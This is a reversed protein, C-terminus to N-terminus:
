LHGGFRKWVPASYYESDDAPTKKGANSNYHYNYLLRFVGNADFKTGIARDTGYSVAGRRLLRSAFQRAVSETICGSIRVQASRTFWCRCPGKMLKARSFTPRSGLNLIDSVSYSSLVGGDNNKTVVGGHGGVLFQHIPTKGEGSDNKIKLPVQNAQVVVSGTLRDYNGLGPQLAIVLSVGSTADLNETSYEDCPWIKGPYGHDKTKGVPWLCSWDDENKSVKKALGRLSDGREAIWISETGPKKKWAGLSDFGNIFENAIFCYLSSGGIEEIPDRSLWRGMVPEHHRYNYYITASDDEAYESSFRWPNSQAEEGHMVLEAGFPAYEYHACTVGDTAVVESVNKNGDHSYYESSTDRNWVLPRTAVPETPDWIFLQLNHTTLQSNISAVKFNAIQLYGDYVFRLDNKMVRRGMRDFSMVINASGNSWHIPRNEGNYTVQWVGTATKVLTQNGDDDFQPAFDDVATYQNLNNATYVSNTGRACSSERNGIDDFDYAYRYDSDVAAVANTLESRSNYGYAILDDQTFASGSKSVSIRRGAADYIYDYQSITNTPFANKVQLLQSNADYQWSAALGNPYALSSKLDSGALYNWTFPTDSGAALMTALRGTAPDYALTSQRVGNLAYGLSRGVSDYYREITNTGAVGIVTENTLSGFDDYLCITIGAADHAEIQRGARNYALSIMPTGDSYVTNTLSGNDDYSYTTVIGRAWTRTALKGDPTYAYRPGKGDAYVKNTVLGTAEDRLWRTVDGAANIDRYTTMSVKDGFEDYSYDVYKRDM